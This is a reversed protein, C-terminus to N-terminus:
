QVAGGRAEQMAKNLKSEAHQLADISDPNAPDDLEHRAIDRVIRGDSMVLIRDCAALLEQLESSLVLIAKGSKALDRILTVIESKSGIDIGATPEDLILVDPETALWKAIVVKQANGGSLTKVTAKRSDTKIRLRKISNEALAAAKARDVWTAKSLRDLSPLGINSEVSHFAVFGQRARDEPVLAIGAEIADRPKAIAVPKGKIRIEGSVIPQIGCILRALSSRGSGLLGAVGVVEGRHLTINVARPKQEGSLDRTELLAEGLTATERTVDSFGRSRRGIIHAIMSDLTFESMPATVIHKGDRLITARDAIRFIEDMRHSVYVIAVGKGRLQRVYDFLRDVETQSLATTPEDLVLVRCPQSTAKIIETLQKHGAPIDAVKRTPDIAVGMAAFLKRTEAIAAKDDILGGAKIERTLFVNQAVTLTPVLSMEQFAMAVGAARSAEPSYITLPVGGIEITGSTPPQVGRLIKLITSKGAGNEGLLAHVEGPEVTFSVGDLARVGGFHKSVNIMHVADPTSSM